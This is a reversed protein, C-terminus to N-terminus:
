QTKSNSMLPPTPTEVENRKKSWIKNVILKQGVKKQRNIKTGKTKIENELQFDIAKPKAKNAFDLIKPEYAMEEWIRLFDADYTTTMGGNNLSVSKILTTFPKRETFSFPKVESADILTVVKENVEHSIYAWKKLQSNKHFPLIHHLFVDLHLKRFVGLLQKVRQRSVSNEIKEFQCLTEEHYMPRIDHHLIDGTLKTFNM